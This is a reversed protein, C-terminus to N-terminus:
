FHRAAEKLVKLMRKAQIHRTYNREMFQIARNSMDSLQKLLDDSQVFKCLASICDSDSGCLALGGGSERILRAAEGEPGIFLVPTGRAFSQFIKSPITEAFNDTRQLSVVTMHVNGYQPELEDKPVGHKLSVFSYDGSALASEVLPRAAGEGILTYKELFGNRFLDASLKLTRVVDQSIGMTGFYGLKLKGSWDHICPVIDAGNPVIAIIEKSVGNDILERCFGETLTVVRDAKACLNLELLKMLKVKPDKEIGGTAVMQRWTLDRFEVVLPIHNHRAYRAGLWGAFVTGSTTLVVDYNTGIPSSKKVCNRWGNIVFSMGGRIRDAFTKNSRIASASRFIRVGDVTEEGLQVMEYGSFLHGIPYNPWGTFVTINHGAEAWIRAHESARFAAAINEPSYFQTFYLIRM